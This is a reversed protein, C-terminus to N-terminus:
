VRIRRLTGATDYEGGEHATVTDYLRAGARKVCDIDGGACTSGAATHRLFHHYGGSISDLTLPGHCAASIWWNGGTEADNVVIVMHKRGSSGSLYGSWHGTLPGRSGSHAVAAGVSVAIAGSAIVVVVALRKALVGM